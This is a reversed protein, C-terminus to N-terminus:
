AIKYYSHIAHYFPVMIINDLKVPFALNSLCTEGISTYKKQGCWLLKNVQFCFMFMTNEMISSSFVKNRVMNSLHCVILLGM